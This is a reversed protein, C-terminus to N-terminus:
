DAMRSAITHTHISRLAQNSTSKDMAKVLVMTLRGVGMKKRGESSRM